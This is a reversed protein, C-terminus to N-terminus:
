EEEKKNKGFHGSMRSIFDAAFKTIVAPAVAKQVSEIMEAFSRSAKEATDAMKKIKQAIVVLYAVLIIGLLLFIALATSLIIVLIDASDM